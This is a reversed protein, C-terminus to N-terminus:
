QNDQIILEQHIPKDIQNGSQGVLQFDDPADINTLTWCEYGSSVSLIELYKPTAYSDKKHKFMLKVDGTSQIYEMKCIQYDSLQGEIEAKADIQHGAGFCHGHDESTIYIGDSDCLRWPACENIWYDGFRFSWMPNQFQIADLANGILAKNLDILHKDAYQM